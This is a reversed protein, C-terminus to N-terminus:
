TEKKEDEEKIPKIIVKIDAGVAKLHIITKDTQWEVKALKIGISEVIQRIGLEDFIM